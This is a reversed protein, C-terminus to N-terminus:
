DPLTLRGDGAAVSDAIAGTLADAARALTNAIRVVSPYPQREDMAASYAMSAANVRSALELISEDGRLPAIGGAGFYPPCRLDNTAMM